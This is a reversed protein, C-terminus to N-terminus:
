AALRLEVAPTGIPRFVIEAAQAEDSMPATVLMLGSASCAFLDDSLREVGDYVPALPTVRNETEFELAKLTTLGVSEIEVHRAIRGLLVGAQWDAPGWRYPSRSSVTM